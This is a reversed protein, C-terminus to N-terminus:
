RLRGRKRDMQIKIQATFTGQEIIKRKIEQFLPDQAIMNTIDADSYDKKDKISKAWKIERVENLFGLDGWFNKQNSRRRSM